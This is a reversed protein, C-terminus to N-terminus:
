DLRPFALPLLASQFPAVQSRQTIAELGVRGLDRLPNLLYFLDLGGGFPGGGPGLPGDCGQGLPLFLGAAGVRWLTSPPAPM